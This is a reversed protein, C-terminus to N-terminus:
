LVASFVRRPMLKRYLRVLFAALTEAESETNDRSFSIRITGSAHSVPLRIARLVHTLVTEQSNCAAGTSVAVGKIDLIHLLGEADMNPLSVSLLGPLHRDQHGNFRAKLIGEAIVSKVIGELRQLHAMNSDLHDIHSRLAVATGVIGAVNETGARLGSEQHGGDIMPPLKVTDRKYLFGVGKPGNFKHASASLMDINLQNVDLPLHGVAQV